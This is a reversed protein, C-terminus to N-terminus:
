FYIKGGLQVNRPSNQQGPIVVGFQGSDVTANPAQFQPHNFANFSETRFEFRAGERLNSLDFSKFVGISATAIGESRVSSSFRPVNDVTSSPVTYNPTSTVISPNAFYSDGPKKFSGSKKLVGTITPRLSYTPVSSGNQQGLAIPFGSQFAWMGTTNWGGLIADVIHNSTSGFQRGHGFPLAYTYAFTLSQPVDFGSIAKELKLNNPDV